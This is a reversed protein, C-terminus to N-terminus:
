DIIVVDVVCNDGDMGELGIMDGVVHGDVIGGVVHEDGVIVGAVHEDDVNDKDDVVIPAPPDFTILSASIM